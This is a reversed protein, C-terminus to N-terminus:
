RFDEFTLPKAPPTCQFPAAALPSSSATAPVSSAAPTKAGFADKNWAALAALPKMVSLALAAVLARRIRNM